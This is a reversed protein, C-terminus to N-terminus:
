RCIEFQLFLFFTMITNGSRKVLWHYMKLSSMIEIRRVIYLLRPIQLRSTTTKLFFKLMTRKWSKWFHEIQWSSVLHTITWQFRHHFGVLSVSCSHQEKNWKTLGQKTQYKLYLQFRPKMKQLGKVWSLHLRWWSM